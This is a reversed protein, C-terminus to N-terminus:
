LYLVWGHDERPDWGLEVYRVLDPEGTAESILRAATAVFKRADSQFSHDLPLVVRAAIQVMALVQFLEKTNLKLQLEPANKFIRSLVAMRKANDRTKEADEASM